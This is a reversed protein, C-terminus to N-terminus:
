HVMTSAPPTKFKGMTRRGNPRILYWRSPATEGRAVYVGGNFAYTAVDDVLVKRPAEFYYGGDDEYAPKYKGVPFTTTAGEESVIAPAVLEIAAAPPESKIARFTSHRNASACGTAVLAVAAVIIASGNM